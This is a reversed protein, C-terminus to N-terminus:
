RQTPHVERMGQVVRACASFYRFDSRRPPMRGLAAGHQLPQPWGASYQSGGLPLLAHLGSTEMTQNGYRRMKRQQQGDTSRHNGSQQHNVLHTAATSGVCRRHLVHMVAHAKGIVRGRRSMRGVAFRRHVCAAIAREEGMCRDRRRDHRGERHQRWQRRRFDRRGHRFAQAMDRIRGEPRPSWWIM